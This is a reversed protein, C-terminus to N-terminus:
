NSSSKCLPNDSNYGVIPAINNITNLLYPIIVPLVLLVVLCIIRVKLNQLFKYLGDNDHGAIVKILNLSSLVVLLIIGGVCIYIFFNNIYTALERSIIDCADASLINDSIKKNKAIELWKLIFEVQYPAASYKLDSRIVCVTSSVPVNDYIWKANEVELRICGASQMGAGAILADHFGQGDPVTVHQIASNETIKQYMTTRGAQVYETYYHNGGSGNANLNVGFIKQIVKFVGYFSSDNRGSGCEFDKIARWNNGNKKYIIVRQNATDIVALYNTSSIYSQKKKIEKEALKYLQRTYQTDTAFCMEPLSLFVYVIIFLFVIIKSVKKEFM